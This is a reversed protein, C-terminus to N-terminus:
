AGAASGSGPEAIGTIMKRLLGFSLPKHLHATFGAARSRAEDEDTTFASLAIAPLDCHRRIRELLAWGDTDPLGIDSILLDFTASACARLAEDALGAIQVAHGDRRLLRALSDATDCHDEVLLIHM